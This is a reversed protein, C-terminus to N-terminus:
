LLRYVQNLIQEQESVIGMRGIQSMKVNGSSAQQLYAKMGDYLGQENNECLTGYRGNQLVEEPGSCKTSLVPIDLFMAEVIAINYGEYRSACVFLDRGRMIPYPNEQSGTLTVADELHNKQIMESINERQSGEGVITLTIDKFGDNRLRAFANILRDYGKVYELRGVSVINFREKELAYLSPLLSKSKIESEDVLNYIRRIDKNRLIDFLGNKVIDSVGVVTDFCAYCSVEEELNNFIGNALPWNNGKLDTHVWAIRKAVKNTSSGIVKTTFGECFAIEVNNDKPVFLKYVLKASLYRYILKIKVKDVFTANSSAIYRYHIADNSKILDAFYGGDAISLVTIDYRSKDINALMTALAREAGGIRLSDVLFLVKKM